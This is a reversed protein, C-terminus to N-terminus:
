GSQLEFSFFQTVEHTVNLMCTPSYGLHSSRGKELRFKEFFLCSMNFSCFLKRLSKLFEKLHAFFIKAWTKTAWTLWMKTNPSRLSSGKSGCHSQHGTARNRSKFHCSHCTITNITHKIARPYLELNEM